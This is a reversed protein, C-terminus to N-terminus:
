EFQDCNNLNGWNGQFEDNTLLSSLAVFSLLTFCLFEATPQIWRLVDPHVFFTEIANKKKTPQISNFQQFNKEIYNRPMKKSLIWTFLSGNLPSYFRVSVEGSKERTQAAAPQTSTSRKISITRKEKVFACERGIWKKKERSTAQNKTRSIKVAIRNIFASVQNYNVTKGNWLKKTSADCNATKLKTKTWMRNKKADRNHQFRYEDNKNLKNAWQLANRQIRQLGFLVGVVIAGIQIPHLPASHVSHM